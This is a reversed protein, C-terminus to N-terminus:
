AEHHPPAHGAGWPDETVKPLPHGDLDYEIKNPDDHHDPLFRSKSLAAFPDDDDDEARLAQLALEDSARTLPDDGAPLVRGHEDVFSSPYLSWVVPPIKAVFTEAIRLLGPMLEPRVPATWVLLWRGKIEFGLEGKTSLLFDLMGADLLATAFRRDPCQVYFLRNFEESEFDIDGGVLKLAKALLGERVITIDPWSSGVLAMAASYRHYTKTVRGYEDKHEVYYWCDFVRYSRGNADDDHWMVNEAGQGDGKCFLTFRVRTCDFPDGESLHLGAKAAVQALGAQRRSRRLFGYMSGIGMVCAVVLMVLTPAQAM